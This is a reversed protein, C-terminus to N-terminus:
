AVKRWQSDFQELASDVSWAYFAIGGETKRRELFDRQAKTPKQGPRKVEISVMTGHPPFAGLLDPFGAPISSHGRGGSVGRFGKGGADIPDLRIRLKLWFAEIIAAQIDRELPTINM